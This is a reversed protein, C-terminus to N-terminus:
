RSVVAGTAPNAANYATLAPSNLKAVADNVSARICAPYLYGAMAEGRVDKWCVTSAAKVIDARVEAAPKGAVQVRMEAASAPAAAALVIASAALVISRIM